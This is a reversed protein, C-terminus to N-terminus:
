QALAALFDRMHLEQSQGRLYLVHGKRFLSFDILHILCCRFFRGWTSSSLWFFHCRWVIASQTNTTIFCLKSISFMKVAGCLFPFVNGISASTNWALRDRWGSSFFEIEEITQKGHPVISPSKFVFRAVFFLGFLVSVCPLNYLHWILRFLVYVCIVASIM